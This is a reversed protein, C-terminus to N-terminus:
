GQSCKARAQPAYSSVLLCCHVDLTAGPVSLLDKATSTQGIVKWSKGADGWMKWPCTVLHVREVFGVARSVDM